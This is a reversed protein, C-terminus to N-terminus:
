AMCFDMLWHYEAQNIFHEVVQSPIITSEPTDLLANIQITQDKPLVVLDDGRFVLYDVLDGVLPLKTLKALVRRTPYITKLFNVFWVPRSM